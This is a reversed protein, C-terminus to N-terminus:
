SHALCAALAQKAAALQSELAALEQRVEEIEQKILPRESAPANQYQNDLDLLRQKADAVAATAESVARREDPCLVVSTTLTGAIEFNNQPQLDTEAAYIVNDVGSFLFGFQQWGGQGIVQPSSVDGGGTQSADVYRLLRGPQDVAYIVNNSGSFLFRFQQWGGQGIVQPSSVDGGGTQSADVYRLLRGPQDVAYIVNNGGSFLFRFQQWGGQGITQPSSVDGGGTQSADVYRLLRGPQDVAYIVNNGGSFLFRFQQWGGQGIVQPSSVDGGGTQSADVYRLLRGGLPDGVILNFNADAIPDFSTSGSGIASDLTMLGTGVEIKQTLSLSDGIAQTVAATVAAKIEEQAQESIGPDSSGLQLLHSQIQSQLTSQFARYGAIVSDNPTDQDHFAGVTLIVVYNSLDDSFPRMLQNVSAPIAVTDGAKMGHKLVDHCASELIGLEGVTATTRNVWVMAPWLYPNSGGSHPQRNCHLTNLTLVVNTEPTPMLDEM